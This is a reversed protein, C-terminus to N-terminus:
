MSAPGSELCRGIHLRGGQGRAVRRWSRGCGVNGKWVRSVVERIFREGGRVEADAGHRGIKKGVGWRGIDEKFVGIGEKVGGVGVKRGRGDMGNKGSSVKRWRRGGCKRAGTRMDIITSLGRGGVNLGVEM